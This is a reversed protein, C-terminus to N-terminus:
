PARPVPLVLAPQLSAMRAPGRQLGYVLLYALAFAGLVQLTTLAPSWRAKLGQFLLVGGFCAAWLLPVFPLAQALPLQHAQLDALGRTWPTGYLLVLHGLYVALSHRGLRAGAAAARPLAGAAWALAAFALLAAGLRMLTFVPDAPNWPLGAGPLAPLGYGVWALLFALAAAGLCAARFAPLRRSEPTEKLVAGLAVGLFMYASTPFLPFLSGHDVSLFAGLPEPLWRFWAMRQVLPAAALIGVGLGLSWAAYRRVSRVRALLATLLLLTVGNLQLISVQLSARWLTPTVYALDALRNAPMVMLYGLGTLSLGMRVRRRILERAVRGDAEHRVGLVSAAGSVMLFLPATLGRLGVWANWGFDAMRIDQPRLFAELTHGEVMLVMAMFRIFDLLQIRPASSGSPRAAM